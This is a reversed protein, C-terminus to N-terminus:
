HKANYPLVLRKMALIVFSKDLLDWTCLVMPTIFIKEDDYIPSVYRWKVILTQQLNKHSRLKLIYDFCMLTSNILYKKAYCIGFILRVFRVTKDYPHSLSLVFRTVVVWNEFYYLVWFGTTLIFNRIKGIHSMVRERSNYKRYLM